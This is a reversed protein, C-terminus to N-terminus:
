NGRSGRPQQQSSSCRFQLLIKRFSMKEILPNAYILGLYIDTLALVRPLLLLFFSGTKKLENKVRAAAELKKGGGGGGGGGGLTRAIETRAL